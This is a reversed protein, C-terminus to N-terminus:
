SCHYECGVLFDFYDFEPMLGFRVDCDTMLEAVIEFNVCTISRFIIDHQPKDLVKLALTSDVACVLAVTSTWCCDCLVLCVIIIHM